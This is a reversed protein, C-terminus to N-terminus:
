WSYIKFLLEDRMTMGRGIVIYTYLVGLETGNEKRKYHDGSLSYLDVSRQTGIKKIDSSSRKTDAWNYIEAFRQKLDPGTNTILCNQIVYEIIYLSVYEINM